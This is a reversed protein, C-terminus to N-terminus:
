KSAAAMPCAFNRRCKRFPRLTACVSSPWIGEAREFIDIEYASTGIVQDRTYGTMELFGPNVKIYRLDTLRCIVAPAPNANFTKEFRQEANAWDTVDSMILVLSEPQGERDTLIMSRVSHVWIREPDDTPSVEILVDNFSECRAVRSIPYNEATISHNNRYRLNFQKAYEDANHGLDTIRSVGHMALAAENAWLISQDLELLIVGDSLGAIIQQLQRRNTETTLVEQSM